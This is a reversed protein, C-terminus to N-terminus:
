NLGRNTLAIRIAPGSGSETFKQTSTWIRIRNMTDPDSQIYINKKIKTHTRIEDHLEPNPRRGSKVMVRFYVLDAQTGENASEFM